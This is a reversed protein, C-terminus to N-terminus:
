RRDAQNSSHAGVMRRVLGDYRNAVAAISLEGDARYWTNVYECMTVIAFATSKVDDVEFVSQDTGAALVDRLEKIYEIEMKVIPELRDSPIEHGLGKRMMAFDFAQAVDAKQLQWTVHARVIQGLRVVPDDDTISQRVYAVFDNMAAEIVSAYLDEKSSFYWYLGPASIGLEQALAKLSTGAYGNQLFMQLAAEM